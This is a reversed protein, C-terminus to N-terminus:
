QKLYKELEEINDVFYVDKIRDNNTFGEYVMKNFLEKIENYYGDLNYFICKKNIYEDTYYQLSILDMAETIESLTGSGGPFAIYIDGLELMQRKRDLIDNTIIFENLNEHQECKDIFMKPEIGIVYGGNDIVSDALVGMLGCKSGGYILKHGSTAILKGLKKCENFYKINDPATAGLYVTINM